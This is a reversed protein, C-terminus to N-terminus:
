QACIVKILLVNCIEENDAADLEKIHQDLSVHSKSRSWEKKRADYLEVKYRKYVM